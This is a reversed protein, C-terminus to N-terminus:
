TTKGAIGNMRLQLFVLGLHKTVPHLRDEIKLLASTPRWTNSRYQGCGLFVRHYWDWNQPFASPTLAFAAFHFGMWAGGRRMYREFALRHEPNEPRSDLFIIVAYEDLNASLLHNWDTTSEYSFHQKQSIRTFWTHADAVFSVHALDQTSSHFALIKQGAQGFIVNYYIFIPLIHILDKLYNIKFPM